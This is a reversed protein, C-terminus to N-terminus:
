TAPEPAPLPGPLPGPGPEPQPRPPEPDPQPGPPAPPVPDPGPAPVPGPAPGPQPGPGPGPPPTPNPPVPDGPPTSMSPEEDTRSTTRVVGAEKGRRGVWPRGVRPTVTHGATATGGGPWGTGGRQPRHPVRHLVGACPHTPQPCCHVIAAKDHMHGDVRRSPGDDHRAGGTVQHHGHHGHRYRDEHEAKHQRQAAVLFEKEVAGPRRAPRPSAGPVGAACLGCRPFGAPGSREGGTGVPRGRHPRGHGHSRQRAPFRRPCACGRARSSRRSTRPAVPGVPRATSWCGGRPSGHARWSRGDRTDARTSPYARRLVDRPPSSLDEPRATSTSILSPCVM